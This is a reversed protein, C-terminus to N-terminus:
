EIETVEYWMIDNDKLGFFEIVGDKDLNGIHKTEGVKKNGVEQFRVKWIRLNEM